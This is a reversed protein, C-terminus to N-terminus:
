RIRVTEVPNAHFRDEREWWGPADLRQSDNPVGGSALTRILHVMDTPLPAGSSLDFVGPEYRGGMRTVMKDWDFSGLLSWATVAEVAVGSARARTADQWVRYFWRAQEEITSGNHCETIAITRRYRDWAQRVLAEAGLLGGAVTRVADVNVCPVMSDAAARVGPYRALRHDVLRESTLYYNIGIVNPPCPDDSIARLRDELGDAVLRPWLPHTPKVLGCLLDWTLWRRENEFAAHDAMQATAHCYGLDETQILRAASNVRRIERMSLRIADIQNLLAHWCASYDHRHPYWFGYLGSFRATTLPENVPTWDEVWPYREAVARAHRALGPAFSGALLNTYKPGSGHHILGVIPRLGVDRLRGLRADSWGFDMAEPDRAATREWLVPYRMARLGISAFLDLDSVREQHGSRRVQDFFADEVRNVTCEVGGWLDLHDADVAPRSSGVEIPSSAPM